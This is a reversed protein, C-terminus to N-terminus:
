RNMAAYIADLQERSALRWTESAGAGLELDGAALHTMCHDAFEDLPAGADHLGKGGLDTNVMPPIIEVVDVPTDSLQTRLSRTFSHLVAKTACYTPMFALPLFALGSSVNIITSRERRLFHPIVLMSLHM